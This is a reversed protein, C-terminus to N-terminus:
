GAAPADGRRRASTGKSLIALYIAVGLLLPATALGPNYGRIWLAWVLHGIGNFIEVAIAIWIVAAAGRKQPRVWYFYGALGILILLSNFAIFAPRALEPANRYVFKAPPFVEYFRFAYEEASHLAQLVVLGLYLHAVRPDM